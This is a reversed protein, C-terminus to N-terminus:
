NVMLTVTIPTMTSGATGTVTFVYSGATTGITVPPTNSGSGGGCGVGAMTVLFIMLALM